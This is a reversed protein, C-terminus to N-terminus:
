CHVRPLRLIIHGKVFLKEVADAYLQYFSFVIVGVLHIGQQGRDPALGKGHVLLQSTQTLLQSSELGLLRLYALGDHGGLTHAGVDHLLGPVLRSLKFSLGHLLGGCYNGPGLFLCALDGLGGLQVRLAGKLAGRLLHAAGPGDM